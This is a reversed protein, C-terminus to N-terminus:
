EKRELWIDDSLLPNEKIELRKKKPEVFQLDETISGNIIDIVKGNEDRMVKEANNKFYERSNRFICDLDNYIESKEIYEMIDALSTYKCKEQNEEALLENILRDFEQTRVFDSDKYKLISLERQIRKRYADRTIFEIQQLKSEIKELCMEYASTEDKGYNNVLYRCINRTAKKLTEPSNEGDLILNELYLINAQQESLKGHKIKSALTRAMYIKPHQTEIDDFISCCWLGKSKYEIDPADTYCFLVVHEGFEGCEYKIAMAVQDNKFKIKESSDYICHILKIHKNDNFIEPNYYYMTSPGWGEWFSETFKFGIYKDGQKYREINPWM